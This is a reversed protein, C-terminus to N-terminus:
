QRAAEDAAARLLAKLNAKSGPPPAGLSAREYLLMTFDETDIQGVLRLHGDCWARMTGLMDAMEQDFPWSILARTYIFVFDSKALAAMASEAPLTELRNDFIDGFKQINGHREISLDEFVDANLMDSIENVAARNTALMANPLHAEASRFYLYDGLANVSHLQESMRPTWPPVLEQTAFLIGAVLVVSAGFASSDRRDLRSALAAWGLVAAWVIGPIIVGEPPQAVQPHITLYGAPVLLFVLCILWAGGGPRGSPAGDQSRPMRSVCWGLIACAAGAVILVLLLRVNAYLLRVALYTAPLALLAVVSRWKAPGRDSSAVDQSRSGPLFIILLQLGIVGALILLLAPVGILSWYISTVMAKVTAIVGIHHHRLAATTGSFHGVWYYEYIARRRVFLTPGFVVIAVVGAQVLHWARERREKSMLLWALLIIFILGFYVVTLFRLLVVLGTCVGFAISRGRSRFGDTALACSLATGYACTAMWDLRFDVVSGPGNSWPYAVAALMGVAAWALSDRGTVKRAVFFTSLQLAIFALMNLSLAAIRSPGVLTFMALALLNQLSGQPTVKTFADWATSFFGSVKSQEFFSYAEKLYYSQDAWRPFAWAIRSSTVWQFLAFEAALAMVLAFYATKQKTFILKKGPAGHYQSSLPGTLVASGTCSGSRIPAGEVM